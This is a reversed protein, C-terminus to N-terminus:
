AAEEGGAPEPPTAGRALDDMSVGCVEAWRKFTPYSPTQGAEIRYVTPEKVGLEKAFVTVRDFGAALRAAQM